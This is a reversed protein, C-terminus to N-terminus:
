ENWYNLEIWKLLWESSNCYKDALARDADGYYRDTPAWVNADGAIEVLLKYALEEQVFLSQLFGNRKQLLDMIKHGWFENDEADPFTQFLLSKLALEIAFFANEVSNNFHMNKNSLIAGALKEKANRSLKEWKKVEM